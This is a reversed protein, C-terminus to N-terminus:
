RGDPLPRGRQDHFGDETYTGVEVTIERPPASDAGTLYDHAVAIASAAIRRPLQVVFGALRRDDVARRFEETDDFGVVVPAPADGAATVSLVGRTMNASAAFVAVPQDPHQALFWEVARAADELRGAADVVTIMGRGGRLAMVDRFGKVRRATSEVGAHDLVLVPIDALRREQMAELLLGAALRGGAANDSSCHSVVPYGAAATDITMVPIGARGAKELHPVVHEADVPAVLIMAVRQRVFDDIVAQQTELAFGADRSVLRLGLKAAQQEMEELMDRSYPSTVGIVSVGLVLEREGGGATGIALAVVMGACGLVVLRFAQWARGVGTASKPLNRVM